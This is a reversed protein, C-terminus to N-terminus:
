SKAARDWADRVLRELVHQDIGELSKLYLCGKGTTHPGLEDLLPEPPAYDNHVGYITLAGKRPSLGVVMTEGSTARGEYHTSGFGIIAPGWMVGPEGTVREMLERVARAQGRRPQPVGALFADVDAGTPKTQIEAM